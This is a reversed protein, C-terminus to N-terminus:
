GHAVINPRGQLYRRVVFLMFFSYLTAFVITWVAGTVSGSQVLGIVLALLCWATVDDVAACTIAITGLQTRTLRQEQIIRALVPFATISMAIGMFLAFASFSKDQPGYDAFLLFALGVGLAFPVIISIQSIVIASRAKARLAKADLELGVIFMFLLIGVQSLFYLRQVSGEPFIFAHLTPAVAQLLSPGLFIGALIEGIVQPQGARRILMGCIRAVVLITVIQLILNSLPSGLNRVFEGIFANM